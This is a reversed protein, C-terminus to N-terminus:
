KYSQVAERSNEDVVTSNQKHKFPEKYDRGAEEAEIYANLIMSGSFRVDSRKKPSKDCQYGLEFWESYNLIADGWTENAKKEINNTKIFAKAEETIYGESTFINFDLRDRWLKSSADKFDRSGYVNDDAIYHQLNNLDVTKM